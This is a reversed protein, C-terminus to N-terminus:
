GAWFYTKDSNESDLILTSTLNKELEYAAKKM